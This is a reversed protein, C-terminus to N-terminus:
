RVKPRTGGFPVVLDDGLNLDPIIYPTCNKPRFVGVDGSHPGFISAKRKFLM